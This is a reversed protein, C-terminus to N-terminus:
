NGLVLQDSNDCHKTEFTIPTWDAPVSGVAEYFFGITKELNKTPTSVIKCDPLKRARERITSLGAKIPEQSDSGSKLDANFTTSTPSVRCLDARSHLGDELTFESTARPILM